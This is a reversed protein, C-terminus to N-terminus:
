YSTFLLIILVLLEGTLFSIANCLLSYIGAQRWDGLLMRYGLAEVLVVLLEGAILASWGQFEVCVAHEAACEDAREDGGIRAAGEPAKRRHLAVRGVRDCDDGVAAGVADAGYEIFLCGVSLRTDSGCCPTRFGSGRAGAAVSKGSLAYCADHLEDPSSSVRM